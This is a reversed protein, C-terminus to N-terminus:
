SDDDGGIFGGGECDGLDDDELINDQTWIHVQRINRLFVSM